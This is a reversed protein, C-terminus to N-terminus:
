VRAKPPVGLFVQGIVEFNAPSAQGQQSACHMDRFRREFPKADFIATGGAAHYAFDVVERAQNMAFTSAMRMRAKDELSFPQGQVALDWLEGYIDLVLARASAMQAQAMAVKSQIVANESLAQHGNQPTKKSALV